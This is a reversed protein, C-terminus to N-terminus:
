VGALGIVCLTSSYIEAFGIVSLASSNIEEVRFIPALFDLFFAITVDSDTDYRIHLVYVSLLSYLLM